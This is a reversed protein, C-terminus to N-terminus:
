HGPDDTKEGRALKTTFYNYLRGSCLSYIKPKLAVLNGGSEILAEDYESEDPPQEDGGDSSENFQCATDTSQEEEISGPIKEIPDPGTISLMSSTASTM